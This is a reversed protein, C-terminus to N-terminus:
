WYDLNEDDKTRKYEFIGGIKSDAVGIYLKSGSANWACGAVEGFFDILQCRDLRKPDYIQVFDAQENLALFTGTPDFSMSRFPGMKSPLVCFAESLNRMDYLRATLDQSGTVVYRGCPSWCCAFSHDRHGTLTHITKGTDTSKILANDSDGVSLFLNQNPSVASCNPAWPMSIKLLVKDLINVDIIRIMEDNSSCIVTQAGSKSLVLSLNNTIGNPDQTLYKCTISSDKGYKLSKVIM